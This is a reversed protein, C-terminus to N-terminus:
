QNQNDEVSSQTGDGHPKLPRGSPQGWTAWRLAIDVAERLGEGFDLGMPFRMPKVLALRVVAM